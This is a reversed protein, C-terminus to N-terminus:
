SAKRDLFLSNPILYEKVFINKVFHCFCFCIMTISPGHTQSNYTAKHTHSTTIQLLKVYDFNLCYSFYITFGKPLHWVLPTDFSPLSSDVLPYLKFLMNNTLVLLKKFDMFNLAFNVLDCSCHM